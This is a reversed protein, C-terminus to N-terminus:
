YKAHLGTLDQIAIHYIHKMLKQIIISIKVAEGLLGEGNTTGQRQMGSYHALNKLLRGFANCWTMGFDEVDVAIVGSLTGVNMQVVITVGDLNVVASIAALADVGENLLVNFSRGLGSMAIDDKFGDRGKHTLEEEAIIIIRM